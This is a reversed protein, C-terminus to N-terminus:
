AAAPSPARRLALATWLAGLADVAGLLLLSTPGRGSLALAAMGAAFLLRTTVSARFYAPLEHRALLVDYAGIAVALVGFARVWADAPPPFGLLSLPLSPAVALGAGALVAYWGFVYVSRAAPSM